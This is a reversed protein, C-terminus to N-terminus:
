KTIEVPKTLWEWYGKNLLSIIRHEKGPVKTVPNYVYGYGNGKDVLLVEGRKAIAKM